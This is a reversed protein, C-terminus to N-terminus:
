YQTTSESEEVPRKTQDSIMSVNFRVDAARTARVVLRWTAKAKPALLALPALTIKQGIASVPTTGSGSVFQQADELQCTVRLYSAPTSGQNTVEIVYTTNKGVEIPDEVDVVELLIAPIGSIPTKCSATVPAACTGSATANFQVTGEASATFTACLKTSAQAALNGVNWVVNNGEVRGGATASGFAAGAPVPMQVTTAAATADGTNNLTFCVDIPRGIYRERPSEGVMALVPQRVLVEAGAEGSVGQTSTVRAVSAFRGTRSARANFTLDKSAGPALEGVDFSLNQQNESTLGSPLADTVRVGTLASSGNNRVTLKVPIPDCSIVEAPMSKVIQISPKLVKVPECLV